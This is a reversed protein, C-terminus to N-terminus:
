LFSILFKWVGAVKKSGGEGGMVTSSTDRKRGLVQDKIWARSVMRRM